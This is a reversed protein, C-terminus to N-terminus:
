GSYMYETEAFELAPVREFQVVMDGDRSHTLKHNWEPGLSEMTDVLSHFLMQRERPDINHHNNLHITLTIPM